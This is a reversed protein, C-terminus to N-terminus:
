RRSSRGDRVVRLGAGYVQRFIESLRGVAWEELSTDGHATIHVDVMDGQLSCHVSEVNQEQGQDLSDALRLIPILRLLTRRAEPDLAQYDAHRAAPMSKRHFRCLMSIFKRETDTFGPLDANAVLYAAHKHHGTESIYHGVDLLYGAAELIKAWSLPLQHLDMLSEFLQHCFSAILKAHPSDVGFKRAMKEVVTRQERSLRSLERGVGRAALDSIIGERVGAALYYLSHHEFLDLVRSFVASGAVIIEARRVGIGVVKKREALTKAAVTQYFKRVQAKTARKRDGEERRARPIRNVACVVAAATASTAVMRDFSGRGIETLAPSLKEDIFQELNHLQQATPPDDSKLFVETLRVAGLPKSWASQLRGDQSLMVEASGGGVDVLLSRGKGAPWKSQVGLHILRAEEQGSIVEVKTGIAESTRALFDERNSADRTAATAVARVGALDFRRYAASMRRLNDCVLTIADESFRGSRFVSEGLRTVQRDQALPVIEGAPNVDAALMRVSNSGIDIAAYRPM